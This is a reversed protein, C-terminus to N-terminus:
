FDCNAIGSPGPAGLFLNILVPYDLFNVVGDENFDHVASSSLFANSFAGVDLFNVVCNNDTDPDCANGFGDADTDTQSANAALTCNDTTDIVGDGDTDPSDSDLSVDVVTAVDDVITVSVTKVLYGSATFVVDYTGAPAFLHYRGYTAESRNSEGGAYAVAPLTIEAVVSLGTLTDTVVGSLPIPVDIAHLIGPWLLTSEAKASAYSPQFSLATEILHSWAGQQALQWQYHEGEAGAPRNDGAYGSAVSLAVAQGFYYNTFPHSSCDYGYLVEAGFSHYDIVKAFNQGQSWAIMTQTEPESAPATGRYTQSAPSTSGGCPSNWGQPYNRNQDIGFNGGVPRRNKRWFNDGTIVENYGDPNWNPAIWIEYSNVANTVDTDTGYLTTFREIADLAIVPTIIERAHHDSVILIDPENEETTVNDSIKVAFMDRNEFTKPQGYLQTLNVLQVIAPFDTAANAMAQNIEALDFYGNPISGRAATNMAVMEHLPRGREIQVIKLPLTALSEFEANSLVLDLSVGTVSGELVDFGQARFTAADADPNDTALTVKMLTSQEAYTTQVMLVSLTLVAALTLRKCLDRGMGNMTNM